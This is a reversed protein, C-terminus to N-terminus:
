GYTAVVPTSIYGSVKHQHGWPQMRSTCRKRSLDACGKSGETRWSVENDLTAQITEARRRLRDRKVPNQITNREIQFGVVRAPGDTRKQLQIAGTCSSLLTASIALTTFGKM